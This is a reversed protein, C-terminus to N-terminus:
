LVLIRDLPASLCTRANEKYGGGGTNNKNTESGRISGMKNAKHPKKQKRPKDNHTVRAEEWLGLVPNILEAGGQTSRKDLLGSAPRKLRSAVKEKRPQIPPRNKKRKSTNPFARLKPLITRGAHKIDVKKKKKQHGRFFEGQPQFQGTKEQFFFFLFLCGWVGLGIVRSCNLPGKTKM